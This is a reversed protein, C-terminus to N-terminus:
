NLAITVTIPALPDIGNLPQPRYRVLDFAWATTALVFYTLGILIISRMIGSGKQTGPRASLRAAAM